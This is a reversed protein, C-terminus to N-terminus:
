GDRRECGLRAAEQEIRRIVRDANSFIEVDTFRLVTIGQKEIWAQRRRDYQQARDPIHSEGDAEIALKLEPCYFDVIYLGIGHQRRFKYGAVQRGQLSFWLIKEARTANNRLYRRREKQSKRNYSVGM